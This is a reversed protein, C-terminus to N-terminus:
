CSFMQLKIVWSNSQLSFVTDRNIRNCTCSQLCKGLLFNPLSPLIMLRPQLSLMIYRMWSIFFLRGLPHMGSFQSISTSWQYVSSATTHKNERKKGDHIMDFPSHNNLFQSFVYQIAILYSKNTKYPSKTFSTYILLQTEYKM